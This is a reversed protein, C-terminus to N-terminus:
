FGYDEKLDLLIKKVKPSLGDKQERELGELKKILNRMVEGFNKNSVDM